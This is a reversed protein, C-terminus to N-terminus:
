KGSFSLDNNNQKTKASQFEVLKILQLLLLRFYRGSFFCVFLCTGRRRATTKKRGETTEKSRASSKTEVSGGDVTVTVTVATRVLRQKSISKALVKKANFVKVKRQSHM